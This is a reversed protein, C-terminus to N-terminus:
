RCVPVDVRTLQRERERFARAPATGLDIRVRADGCDVDVTVLDRTDDGISTLDVRLDDHVGASDERTLDSPQGAHVDGHDRHSVLIQDRLRVADGEVHRRHAVGGQEHVETTLGAPEHHTSVLPVRRGPRQVANWGVEVALQEGFVPRAEFLQHLACEHAHGLEPVRLDDPQDVARFRESRVALENEARRVHAAEPDRGTEASVPERPGAPHAPQEGLPDHLAQRAEVDPLHIRTAEPAVVLAAFVRQHARGLDVRGVVVDLIRTM